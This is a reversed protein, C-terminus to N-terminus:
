MLAILDNSFAYAVTGRPYKERDDVEQFPIKVTKTRIMRGTTEKVARRLNRAMESTETNENEIVSPYALGVQFGEHSKTYARRMGVSEGDNNKLYDVALDGYLGPPIDTGALQNFEDLKYWSVIGSNLVRMQIM